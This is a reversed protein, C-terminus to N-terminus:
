QLLKPYIYLQKWLFEFLITQPIEKRIPFFNLFNYLNKKEFEIFIYKYIRKRMVNFFKIFKM